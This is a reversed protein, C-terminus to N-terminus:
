PEGLFELSDTIGKLHDKDTRIILYQYATDGIELPKNYRAIIASQGRMEEPQDNSPMICCAERGATITSCISPHTGYPKLRHYAEAGCVEELSASCATAAAQFFGDIGEYRDDTVRSWRYPYLLRIGYKKSTYISSIMPICMSQGALLADPNIGPNAKILESLKMKYRRAISYFTDGKQVTYSATGTPCNATSAALPISIVQGPTILEPEIDPNAEVLDDLSVGYFRSITYLTDGAQVIYCNDEPCRGSYPHFM